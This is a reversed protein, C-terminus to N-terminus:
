KGKDHVSKEAVIDTFHLIAKMCIHLVLWGLLNPIHSLYIMKMGLMNKHHWWKWSCENYGTANTIDRYGIQILDLWFIKKRTNIVPVNTTSFWKIRALDQFAHGCYFCQCCQHTSQPTYAPFINRFPSKLNNWKVKLPRVQYDQLVKETILM